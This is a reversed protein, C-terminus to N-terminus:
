MPNGVWKSRSTAMTKFRLIVYFSGLFALTLLVINFREHPGRTLGAQSHSGGKRLYSISFPSLATYPSWLNLDHKSSLNQWNQGGKINFEQPKSCQVSKELEINTRCHILFGDSINIGQKTLSEASRLGKSMKLKRKADASTLVLLSCKLRERGLQPKQTLILGRNSKRSMESLPCM